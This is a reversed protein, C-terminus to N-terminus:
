RAGIQREAVKDSADGQAPPEVVLATEQEQSVDRDSSIPQLVAADAFYKSSLDVSSRRGIDARHREIWRSVEIHGAGKLYALLGMDPIAKTDVDLGATHRGAEILHLRHSKLKKLRKNRAGAFWGGQTSQALMLTELEKLLPQNFTITNVRDEIDRPSKPVGVRRLPNLQVLLTDLIPSEACMTVLDPNASFGGDWYARGEIEVAHHLTPLCASALVVDVTLEHKRFIRARGTAVETAAILLDVPCKARIAEFDIHSKLVNRLPDFGLPNFDYPSFFNTLNAMPAARALSSWFPNHRLLDPVGASEVSDWVGQLTQRALERDGHALGHAVAVANVAGASTGSLWGIEIDDQALLTDLVGWTFAGHAGGGQLALNLGKRRNFLQM